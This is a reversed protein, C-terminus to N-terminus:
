ILFISVFKRTKHCVMNKQLLRRRKYLKQRYEKNAAVAAKAEPSETDNYIKPDIREPPVPEPPLEHDTRTPIDGIAINNEHCHLAIKLVDKNIKWGTKGLINLGDCVLSLDAHQLAEQQFNSEHTRMLDSKLWRYGGQNPGVWDTPPVIM